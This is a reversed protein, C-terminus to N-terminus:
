ALGRLAIVVCTLYTRLIDEVGQRPLFKDIGDLSAVILFLVFLIGLKCPDLSM